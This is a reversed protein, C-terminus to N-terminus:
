EPRYKIWFTTKIEELIVLDSRWFGRCMNRINQANEWAYKKSFKHFDFFELLVDTGVYAGVGNFNKIKSIKLSFVKQLFRFLSFFRLNLFNWHSLNLSCKHTANAYYNDWSFTIKHSFHELITCNWFYVCSLFITNFNKFVFFVWFRVFINWYKFFSYRWIWFKNWYKFFKLPIAIKRFM